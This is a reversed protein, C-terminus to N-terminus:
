RTVGGPRVHWMTGELPVDEPHTTTVFIQASPLCRTLAAARAPDLESYVDDLLLVPSIGAVVTVAEHVALRLSLAATRQEGQSGYFRLDHGDLTVSPEDRHPGTATVRRERDSRRTSRLAERLRAALDGPPTTADVEGAWTSAYSVAVASDSGSVSQYARALPDSLVALARARRSLVKGGAVAMREDWVDLTLDDNGGQKLFANRQRLARDLEAQDLYSGPWLQVAVTDLFDRRHAPGRKILDLDEPLFTVTRVHGLLDSTRAVRQRNVFARRGGRRRIEIEILSAAEGEAVEGRVISSAATFSPLAEDPSGRFSGLTSLYGAAELVSTKGAGNPGVLLNVGPVPSWELSQHVRFDTLSLWSLQM